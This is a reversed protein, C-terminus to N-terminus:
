DFSSRKRTEKTARVRQGIMREVRLRDISSLLSLEFQATQLTGACIMKVQKKRVKQELTTFNEIYSTQVRIFVKESSTKRVRFNGRYKKKPFSLFCPARRAKIFMLTNILLNSKKDWILDQSCRQRIERQHTLNLSMEDM